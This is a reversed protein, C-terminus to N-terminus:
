ATYQNDLVKNIEDMINQNTDDPDFWHITNDRKFWTSQRKALAMTNQTILDQAQKISIQGDLHMVCEKYGVSQLPRLDKSYKKVLTQTENLIGQEFMNNTRVEIANKLVEKKRRLGLQVLTYPFKQPNFDNRIQTPGKGSRILELGRLIRYTDNPHIKTAYQPDSIQLEEYLETSGLAKLDAKLKHKVETSVEPIDHMGKLLAQLYFGTGGVLIAFDKSDSLTKLIQLAQKRFDGATFVETPKIEDILHHRIANLMEPPPKATGINLEQYIQLSDFSIIETNLKQALQFAIATKGTATAGCISVVKM